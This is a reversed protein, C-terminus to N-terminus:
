TFVQLNTFNTTADHLGLKDSLRLKVGLEVCEYAIPTLNGAEWGKGPSPMTPSLPLYIHM